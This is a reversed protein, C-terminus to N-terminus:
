RLKQGGAVLCPFDPDVIQVLVGPATPEPSPTTLGHTGLGRFKALLVENGSVACFIRVFDYIPFVQHVHQSKFFISNCPLGGHACKAGSGKIHASDHRAECLKMYLFNSQHHQHATYSNRWVADPM